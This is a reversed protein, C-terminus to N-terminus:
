GRWCQRYTVPSRGKRMASELLRNSGANIRAMGPVARHAQQFTNGIKEEASWHNPFSLHLVSIRYEGQPNPEVIAIDEQIQFALADLADAYTNETGDASQLQYNSDFCLTEGSLHCRLSLQAPQQQHSFKDPHQQYLQESILRAAQTLTQPDPTAQCYHQERAREHAQRKQRLYDSYLNDYQFLHRDQQGNGFDTRLPFFGPAIEYRGCKFPFYLAPSALLM